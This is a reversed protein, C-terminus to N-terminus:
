ISINVHTGITSLERAREAEGAEKVREAKKAVDAKYEADAQERPVAASSNLKSALGSITSSM